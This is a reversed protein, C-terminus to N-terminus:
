QQQLKKMETAFRRGFEEASPTDFHTGDAMPTLGESRALGTHVITEALKALERNINQYHPKYQGLEGAVFPLSPDQVTTRVQRIVRNLDILYHSAKEPQSDSEGQHWIVGKVVGYRMAAKIRQQADDWPHTNTISDYAAPKWLQISTGGVACPVLGITIGPQVMAKGFTLGPGVGVVKPKDFHLPHKALVWQQDQTFMLLQDDLAQDTPVAGRGAMNSQGMLIYIHFNSDVKASSLASQGYITCLFLGMVFTIMWKM